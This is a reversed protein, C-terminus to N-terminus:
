EAVRWGRASLESVLQAAAHPLVALEVIGVQAGEAHELRLDEINIKLDGIENLLRALQGPKDDVLVVVTSFRNAQGHKGPLRSVGANGAVLERTIQTRSDAAGVNRLAETVNHLDGQLAELVPVIADSNAGLIQVWLEPDSAAIRTVDRLGQGALRVSQDDAEVLQKALVSSIIQPVHSVLGVAKDHQAASMEIPTAGVDLILSEVVARAEASSTVSSCIVWPRGIFLDGSASVAGGRERGALPHSGVYRSLNATSVAGDPGSAELIKELEVIVSSKVSAVDTVFAQPFAQLEEAIVQATVDPPVCVVILAPTDAAAPTRGAGLDVALQVTSPSIDDLIVDIGQSHLALAISTGLLGSGVIRVQGTLRPKKADPSM